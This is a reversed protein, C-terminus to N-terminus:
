GMPTFKLELTRRPIKVTDMTRASHFCQVQKLERSCMKFELGELFKIELEIGEQKEVL